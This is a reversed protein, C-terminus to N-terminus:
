RYTIEWWQVFPIHVIRDPNDVFEVGIVGPSEASPGISDVNVGEFSIESGDKLFFTVFPRPADGELLEREWSALGYPHGPINCNGYECRCIPM